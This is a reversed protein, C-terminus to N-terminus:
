AAPRASRRAEHRACQRITLPTDRRRVTLDLEDRVMRRSLALDLMPTYHRCGARVQQFANVDPRQCKSLLTMAVNRRAPQGDEDVMGLLWAASVGTVAEM